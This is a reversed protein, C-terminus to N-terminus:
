LMFFLFSIIILWFFVVYFFKMLFSIFEILIWSSFFASKGCLSFFWTVRLNTKWSLHSFAVSCYRYLKSSFWFQSGLIKYGMLSDCMYLPLFFIVNRFICSNLLDVCKNRGHGFESWLSVKRQVSWPPYGWVGSWLNPGKSPVHGWISNIQNNQTGSIPSQPITLSFLESCKFWSTM